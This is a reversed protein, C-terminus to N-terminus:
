TRGGPNGVEGTLWAALKAELGRRIPLLEFRELIESAFARVLLIKASGEDIGRSRLYFIEEEGVQGVTSGHSCKVDDNHIELEPRSDAKAERSILLNRNSQRADSFRADRSVVVKGHFLGQGRGDLIGNYFERSTGRPRAHEVTTRTETRRTGDGLYLGDLVCEAGEGDLVVDIGSRSVAGGLSASHSVYRSGREQHAIVAASHEAERSEEQIRYHVISAEPGAAIRTIADTSYKGVGLAAYHEIFTAQAGEEAVVLNFPHTEVSREGASALFLLYVPRPVVTGRRLYLFGGNESAAGGRGTFRAGAPLAGIRSTEPDFRGDLFVALHCDLGPFLIREVAESWSASAAATRERRLGSPIM